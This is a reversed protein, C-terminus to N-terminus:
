LLGPSCGAELSIEAVTTAQFGGYAFCRAAADLLEEARTPLTM